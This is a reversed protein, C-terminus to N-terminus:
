ELEGLCLVRGQEDIAKAVLRALDDVLTLLAERRVKGPDYTGDHVTWTESLLLAMQKAQELLARLTELSEGEFCANGYLSIFQGTREYLKVFAPYLFWYYGDDEFPVVDTHKIEMGSPNAAIGITLSM